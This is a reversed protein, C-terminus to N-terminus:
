AIVVLNELVLSQWEELKAMFMPCHPLITAVSFTPLIEPQLDM